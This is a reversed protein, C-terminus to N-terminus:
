KCIVDENCLLLLADEAVQSFYLTFVVKTPWWFNIPYNSIECTQTHTYTDETCSQEGRWKIRDTHWTQTHTNGHTSSLLQTACLVFVCWLLSRALVAGVGRERRREDLRGARQQLASGASKGYNRGGFGPQEKLGSQRKTKERERERKKKASTLLSSWAERVCVENVFGCFLFLTFPFFFCLVLHPCSSRYEEERRRMRGDQYWSFCMKLTEGWNGWM